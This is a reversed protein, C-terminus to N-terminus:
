QVCANNVNVFLDGFWQDTGCNTNGDFGDDLNGSPTTNSTNNSISDRSEGTRVYFGYGAGGGPNLGSVNNFVSDNNGSSNPGCTGGPNTANCGLYV